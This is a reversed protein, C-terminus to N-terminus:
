LTIIDSNDDLGWAPLQIHWHMAFYLKENRKMKMPSRDNPIFIIFGESLKTIKFSIVNQAHFKLWKRSRPEYIGTIM